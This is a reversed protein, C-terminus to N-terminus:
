RRPALTRLTNAAAIGGFGGGLIVTAQATM